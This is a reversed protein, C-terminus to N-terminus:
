VSIHIEIGRLGEVKQLSSETVHEVTISLFGSVNDDLDYQMEFDSVYLQDTSLDTRQHTLLMENTM